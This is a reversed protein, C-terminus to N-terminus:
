GEVVLTATMAEHGPVACIVLYTGPDLDVDVRQASYGPVGLDIGTGEITFTHPFPDANDVWVGTADITFVIETPAFQVSRTEVVVDGAAAEASEVGSSAVFGVIASVVVAGTGVVAAPTASGGRRFWLMFGALSTLLAGVVSVVTLTFVVAEEPHSLDHVIPPLNGALALLPIVAAAVAVWTRTMRGVLTALLAFAIGVAAVPPIVTGAVVQLAVSWTAMTAAAAVGLRRWGPDSTHRTERRRETQM